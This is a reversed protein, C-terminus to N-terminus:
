DDTPLKSSIKSTQQSRPCVSPNDEASSSVSEFELVQKWSMYSRVCSVTERYNQEESLQQDPEQTPVGAEQDSVEGEGELLVTPPLYDTPQVEM